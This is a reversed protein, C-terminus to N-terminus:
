CLPKRKKPGLAQRMAYARLVRLRTNERGTASHTDVSETIHKVARANDKQIVFKGIRQRVTISNAKRNSIIYSQPTAGCEAIPM